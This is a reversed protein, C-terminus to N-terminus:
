NLKTKKVSHRRKKGINISRLSYLSVLQPFLIEGQHQDRYYFVYVLKAHVTNYQKKKKKKLPLNERELRLNEVNNM